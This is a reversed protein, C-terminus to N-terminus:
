ILLYNFLKRQNFPNGRKVVYDGKPIKSDKSDTVCFISDEDFDIIGMYCLSLTKEDENANDPTHFTLLTRKELPEPNPTKAEM